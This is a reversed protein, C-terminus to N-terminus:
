GTHKGMTLLLSSAPASVDLVPPQFDFVTTYAGDVTGPAFFDIAPQSGHCSACATLAPWAQTNWRERATMATPVSAAEDLCGSLLACAVLLGRSRQLSDVRGISDIPRM